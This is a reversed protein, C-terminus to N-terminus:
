RVTETCFSAGYRTASEFVERAIDEMVTTRNGSIDMLNDDYWQVVDPNFVVYTREGVVPNGSKVIRSVNSNGEFLIRYDDQTAPEVTTNPAHYHHSVVFNGFVARPGLIRSMANMKDVDDFYFDIDSGNASQRIRIGKDGSFIKGLKDFYSYWPAKKGVVANSADSTNSANATTADMANEQKHPREAMDKLENLKRWAGYLHSRSVSPDLEVLHYASSVDGMIDCVMGLAVNGADIAM